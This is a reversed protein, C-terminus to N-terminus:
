SLSTPPLTLLFETHGGIATVLTNFSNGDLGRLDLHYGSIDFTETISSTASITRTISFAVGNLTASPISYNMIVPTALANQVNVIISGSRVLAEVLQADKLAYRTELNINILSVGPQITTSIPLSLLNVITTDPISLLTDILLNSFNNVYVFKLSSDPNSVLLSDEVLDNLSLTTKLVPALVDVDWEANGSDEKCGSSLVLFYSSLLLFFYGAKKRM